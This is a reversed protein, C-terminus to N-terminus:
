IVTSPVDKGLKGPDEVVKSLYANPKFITLTGFRKCLIERLVTREWSQKGAVFDKVKQMGQLHNENGGSMSCCFHAKSVLLVWRAVELVSFRSNLQVQPADLAADLNEIGQNLVNFFLVCFSV